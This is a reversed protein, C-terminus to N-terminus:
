YKLNITVDSNNVPCTVNKIVVDGPKDKHHDMFAVGAPAALVSQPASWTM